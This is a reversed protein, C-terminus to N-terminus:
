TRLEVTKVNQLAISTWGCTAIRSQTFIESNFTVNPATVYNYVFKIKLLIKLVTPKIQLLLRVHM